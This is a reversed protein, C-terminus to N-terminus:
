FPVMEELEQTPIPVRTPIADLVDAVNDDGLIEAGYKLQEHIWEVNTSDVASKLFYLPRGLRIAEWGQHQTGSGERAEIIITAPSLLAMTRNRSTFFWKQVVTGPPFQSVVVHESMISQQLRANSRPTAQELPTGLVAVTRGGCQMAAEHAVTDVGLALGSLVAIDRRVLESVLRRTRRVGEPFPRRSGVVSVIRGESFISPDGVVWLQRPAYKREIENLPGILDEVSMTVGEMGTM